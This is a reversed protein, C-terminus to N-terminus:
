NFIFNVPFDISKKKLFVDFLDVFLLVATDEAMFVGEMSGASGMQASVCVKGRDGDAGRNERTEM